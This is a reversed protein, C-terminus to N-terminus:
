VRCVVDYEFIFNSMHISAITGDIYEVTLVIGKKGLIIEGNGHYHGLCFVNYTSAAITGNPDDKVTSIGLIYVLIQITTPNFSLIPFHGLSNITMSM